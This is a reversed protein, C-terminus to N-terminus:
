LKTATIKNQIELINTVLNQKTYEIDSRRKESMREEKKQRVEARWKRNRYCSVFSNVIIPVPLSLIFIGMIPCVGGFFKGFTSSPQSADSGVTSITMVSWLMGDFLTWPEENDKENFYVLMAFIFSSFALLLLLLGMEKYAENMTEVLSALGAFHRALKFIRMIRLVRVLRIIKGAKGILKLDEMRDLVLALYFPIVALFDVMNMASSCNMCLFDFWYVSLLISVPM